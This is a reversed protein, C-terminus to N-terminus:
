KDHARRDTTRYMHSVDMRSDGVLQLATRVFEGFEDLHFHVRQKSRVHNRTVQLVFRFSENTLLFNM